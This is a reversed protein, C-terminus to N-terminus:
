QRWNVMDRVVVKHNMLVSHWARWEGCQRKPGPNIKAHTTRM